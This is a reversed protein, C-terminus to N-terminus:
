NALHSMSIETNALALPVSNENYNSMLCLTPLYSPIFASPDTDPRTRFNLCFPFPRHEDKDNRFPININFVFIHIFLFLFRGAKM